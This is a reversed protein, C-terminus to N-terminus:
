HSSLLTIAVDHPRALHSHIQHALLGTGRKELDARFQAPAVMGGDHVAPFLYVGLHYIIITYAALDRGYEICYLACLLKYFSPLDYRTDGHETRSTADLTYLIIPRPRGSSCSIKPLGALAVELICLEVM